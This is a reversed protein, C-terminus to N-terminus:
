RSSNFFDSSSIINIKRAKYEGLMKTKLSDSVALIADNIAMVKYGRNQAAQMSSKVCHAADLGTVYLKNVKQKILISDLRPNSFADERQKTIINDSVLNLRKDLVVGKSGKALSNNLLNVLVNSVESRVYIVPMNRRFASDIIRNLNKILSDSAKIYSENDAMKGTTYEQIDIVLLASNDKPYKEIPLGQSVKLGNKEFIILNGGLVIIVLLLVAIIWLIIKKM